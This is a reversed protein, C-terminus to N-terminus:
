WNQYTVSEFTQGFIGGAIAMREDVLELWPFCPKFPHSARPVIFIDPRTKSSAEGAQRFAPAEQPYSHFQERPSECTM